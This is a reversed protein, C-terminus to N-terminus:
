SDTPLPDAAPVRDLITWGQGTARLAREELYPDSLVATTESVLASEVFQDVSKNLRKAAEMVVPLIEDSVHANMRYLIESFDCSGARQLLRHSAGLRSRLGAVFVNTDLAIDV